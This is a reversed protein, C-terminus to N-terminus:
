LGVGPPNLVEGLYHAPTGFVFVTQNAGRDLGGEERIVGIVMGRRDLVPGGSFGPTTMRQLILSSRARGYAPVGATAQANVPILAPEHGAIPPYGLVMVPELDVVGQDRLEIRMPEIGVPIATRIAALDVGDPGFLIPETGLEVHTGDRKLVRLLENNEVVHKATIIMQEPDAIM